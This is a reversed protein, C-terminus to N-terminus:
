VRCEEQPTEEFEAAKANGGHVHNQDLNKRSRQRQALHRGLRLRHFGMEVRHLIPGLDHLKQAVAAGMHPLGEVDFEILRSSRM